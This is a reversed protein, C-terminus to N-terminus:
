TADHNNDESEFSLEFSSVSDLLVFDTQVIDSVNRVIKLLKQGVDFEFGRVEICGEEGSKFEIKLKAM